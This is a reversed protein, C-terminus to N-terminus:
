QADGKMAADIADRLYSSRDDTVAYPTPINGMNAGYGYNRRSLWDLRAKDAKLREVEARLEDRQKKFINASDRLMEAGTRTIKLLSLADDRERELEKIREFPVENLERQCEVCDLNPDSWGHKCAPYSM